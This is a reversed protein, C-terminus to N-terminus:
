SFGEFFGQIIIIQRVSETRHTGGTCVILHVQCRRNGDRTLEAEHLVEQVEQRQRVPM